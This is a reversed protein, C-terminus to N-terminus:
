FGFSPERMNSIIQETGEQRSPTRLVRNGGPQEASEQDGLMTMRIVLRVQKKNRGGHGSMAGGGPRQSLEGAKNVNLM